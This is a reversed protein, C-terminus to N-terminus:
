LYAKKPNKWKNDIMNKVILFQEKLPINANINDDSSGNSCFICGLNNIKGDRNPCTFGADLGIKAVKSNYKNKLYYDYSYYRKNTNSYKFPNIMKIVKLIKACKLFFLM